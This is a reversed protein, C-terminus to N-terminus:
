FKIIIIAKKIDNYPIQEKLEVTEKGKGIQKPRREKWELVVYEETSETLVGEVEVGDVKTIKLDRGVNKHYQRPLELPNSIGASYVSLEFDEEERDLNNEVARSCDLCDQVSVGEDGDIIIEIQNLPSVKCSILFLDTRTQLFDNLLTDVKDKLKM